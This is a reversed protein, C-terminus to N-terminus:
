ECRLPLMSGVVVVVVVEKHETDIGCESGVGVCKISIVVM